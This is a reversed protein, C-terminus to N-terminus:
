LLVTCPLGTSEEIAKAIERNNAIFEMRVDFRRAREICKNLEEHLANTQCEYVVLGEYDWIKKMKAGLEGVDFSDKESTTFAFSGRDQIMLITRRMLEKHEESGSYIGQKAIIREPNIVALGKESLKGEQTVYGSSIARTLISPKRKGGYLSALSTLWGREKLMAYAEKVSGKRDIAIMFRYIAVSPIDVGDFIGNKGTKHAEYGSSGNDHMEIPMEPEHITDPTYARFRSALMVSEEGSLPSVKIYEPWLQGKQAMARDFLLMEGQDAAKLYASEFEGLELVDRGFYQYERQQHLMLLACSNIFVKPVDEIQQTSVVLGFGYKRGLRVVKELSSERHLDFERERKFFQWAEDLIVILRLESNLEPRRDFLESIRQMISYVVLSKESENLGALSILNNRTFIGKWFEEPEYGIVRQIARLRQNLVNAKGKDKSCLTEWMDFLSPEVGDNYFRLLASKVRTSQLATLRAAVILSEVAMSARAEKGMGNLKFLNIKFNEPVKWITVGVSKAWEENEGNWDIMLFNINNALSARAAVTLMTVTKGSSTSGNILIHHNPEKAYNIRRISDVGVEAPIHSATQTFHRFSRGIVLSNKDRREWFKGFKKRTELFTGILLLADGIFFAEITLSVSGMIMYFFIIELVLLVLGEIMFRFALWAFWAINEMHRFRLGKIKRRLKGAAEEPSVQRTRINPNKNDLTINMFIM